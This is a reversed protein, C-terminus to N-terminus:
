TRKPGKGRARTRSTARPLLISFASGSGPRSQLEIRGGHEEVIRRTIYLGLGLGRKGRGLQTFREFIAEQKELPIGPGSDMVTVRIENKREEIEASISGRPPTFKIANEILNSVAQLIRAYDFSAVAPREPLNTTVTLEQTEGFPRLLRIADAVVARLDAARVELRLKGGSIREADLLDSILGEMRTVARGLRDSVEVFREGAPGEIRTRALEQACLSIANLPTRLDHSVVALSEDRELLAALAEQRAKRLGAVRGRTWELHADARAREQGLDRDTRKRERGFLVSEATEGRTRAVGRDSLRGVPRRNYRLSTDAAERESTLSRDTRKREAGVAFRKSAGKSRKKPM